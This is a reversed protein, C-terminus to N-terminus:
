YWSIKAMPLDNSVLAFMYFALFFDPILARRIRLDLLKLENLSPMFNLIGEQIFNCNCARM